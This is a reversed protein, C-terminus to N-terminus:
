DEAWDVDGPSPTYTRQLWRFYRNAERSGRYEKQCVNYTCEVMSPRAAWLGNWSEGGVYSIGRASGTNEGFMMITIEGIEVSPDPRVYGVSGAPCFSVMKRRAHVRGDAERVTGLDVWLEETRGTSRSWEGDIFVLSPGAATFRHLYRDSDAYRYGSPKRGCHLVSPSEPIDQDGTEMWEASDMPPTLSGGALGVSLPTVEVRLRAAAAEQRLREAEVEALAAEQRAAELERELREEVEDTGGGALPSNSPTM